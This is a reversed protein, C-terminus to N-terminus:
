GRLGKSSSKSRSNSRSGSSRGSRSGRASEEEAPEEEVETPEEDPEAPAQEAPTEEDVPEEDVPEEDVPAEDVAEDAPAEDAPAEEASEEDVLAEDVAEAAEPEEEAQPEPAQDEERREEEEERRAQEEEVVEEHTRVVESDRIEGRWGEVSDPDLITSTMVHHVFFKFEQRLRRGVARWLNGTKEMFGQPHYEVVAMIRTLNPALEHFTVARDLHGKKGTSQWVIQEDPVQQIITSEWTRHSWFVQGKFNVKEESEQEVSEVKKMFGTWDQFQTWQNYAVSIPVGVDVSEVINTFKHGGSGGSGGGGVAEKVKEKAGTAAGSLGAKVPSEGEALKQAGEQAAQGMAGSGSGGSGLQGIFDELKDGLGSIAKEGWASAFDAASKKLEDLPLQEVVQGVGSKSTQEAM